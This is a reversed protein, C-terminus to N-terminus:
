EPPNRPNFPTIQSLYARIYIPNEKDRTNELLMEVEVIDDETSVLLIEQIKGSTRDDRQTVTVFDDRELIMAPEIEKTALISAIDEGICRLADSLKEFEFVQEFSKGEKDTWLIKWRKMNMGGGKLIYTGAEYALKKIEDMPELDETYEGHVCVPYISDGISTHVTICTGANITPTLIKMIADRVASARYAKNEPIKFEVEYM